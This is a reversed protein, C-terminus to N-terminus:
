KTFNLNLKALGVRNIASKKCIFKFKEDTLSIWDSYNMKLIEENPTFEPINNSVLSINWPCVDQCIDCGYIRDSMLEKIELPIDDRREITNYSICKRADIVKAEVIASTPCADICKTCTGCYSQSFPTDYELEIDVMLEGIFTFSGHKKSLLLSNKGIWGLGAEVAWSHELVPASDVFCRGNINEYKSRIFDLLLFLKDKLVKHYDEGYAYKAFIPRGATEFKKDPFYNLSVLILSKVGEVMLSPDLRKDKNREMYTMDANYGNELWSDLHEQEEFLYRVPAIGCASLGISLAYAKIDASNM